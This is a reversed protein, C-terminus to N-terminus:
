KAAEAAEGGEAAFAANWENWCLANSNGRSRLSCGASTNERPEMSTFNYGRVSDQVHQRSRQPRSTVKMELAGTTAQTLFSDM